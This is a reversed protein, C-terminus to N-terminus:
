NNTKKKLTYKKTDTQKYFIWAPLVWFVDGILQIVLMSIAEEGMFHWKAIYYGTGGLMILAVCICIMLLVKSTKSYTPQESQVLGEKKPLRELVNEYIERDRPMEYGYKELRKLYAMSALMHYLFYLFMPIGLFLGLLILIIAFGMSIELYIVEINMFIVAQLVLVGMVISCVIYKKVSPRDYKIYTATEIPYKEKFKKLKM